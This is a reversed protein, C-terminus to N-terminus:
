ASNKQEQGVVGILANYAQQYHDLATKGQGQRLYLDGLENQAAAIGKRNKAATYLALATQLQGLALDAKGRKLFRRGEQLATAANDAQQVVMATPGFVEHALSAKALGPLLSASVVFAGWKRATANVRTSRKSVAKSMRVAS